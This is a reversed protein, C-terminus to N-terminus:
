KRLMEYYLFVRLGERKRLYIIHVKSNKIFCVQGDGIM